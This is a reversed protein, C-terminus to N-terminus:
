GNKRDEKICKIIENTFDHYDIATTSNPAYENLNKQLTQSERTKVSERIRTKFIRTGIQNAIDNLMTGEIDATLRQREKYKIILIGLLKLSTNVSAFEQIKSYFSVLGTIGFAECEVPIIVYDAAMLINGLLVGVGRPADFIIYDYADEVEKLANKIYNYMLPGPPVMTDANNLQEDNAIIDGNEMHQICEQASCSDFIIDAVTAVGETQANYVFTSNMQPDMDVLLVKKKKKRLEAALCLSTTTKGIGGKQTALAIKIAM